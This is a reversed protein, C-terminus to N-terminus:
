EQSFEIDYKICREGTPNDVELCGLGEAKKVANM